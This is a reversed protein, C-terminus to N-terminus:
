FILNYFEGMTFHGQQSNTLFGKVEYEKIKGVFIIIQQKFDEQSMEGAIESWEAYFINFDKYHHVKIYPTSLVLEM